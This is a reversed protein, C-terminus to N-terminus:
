MENKEVEKREEIKKGDVSFMRKLIDQLIEKDKKFSSKVVSDMNHYEVNKLIFDIKEIYHLLSMKILYKEYELDQM